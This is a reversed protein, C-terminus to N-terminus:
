DTKVTVWGESKRLRLRNNAPDYYMTGPLNVVKEITNSSNINLPKCLAIYGDNLLSEIITSRNTDDLSNVREILSNLAENSTYRKFLEKAEIFATPDKLTKAKLLKM